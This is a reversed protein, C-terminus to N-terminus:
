WVVGFLNLMVKFPFTVAYLLSAMVVYFGAWLTGGLEM